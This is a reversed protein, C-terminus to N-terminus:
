EDPCVSLYPQAPLLEEWEKETLDRGAMRCAFAVARDLGTEWRYVGGDHSAIVVDHTAGIFQAGAPVPDGQHPPHMTGLLDLTTANWLSVGGDEAGSVLLEGDDSYNLWSGPALPTSRQEDGTSVDITVIEGTRGAMAVTSGDPSPVVANAFLAVDGESRVEGTSVDIVRWQASTLDGSNELLMATSGDGLPIVWHGTMDLSAGLPRLTEADVTIVENGRGNVEGPVDTGGVLLSRGGDLYAVSWTAGQFLAREEHVEGTAPDVVAADACEAGSCFPIYWRGRPHWVGSVWSDATVPVREPPTAEGTATDVFRVWGTDGDLWTYAVRQGDPSIDAHAFVESDRFPTTQQLYTDQVSLDWTRLM